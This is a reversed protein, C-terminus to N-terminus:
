STPMGVVPDWGECEGYLGITGNGKKCFSYACMSVDCGLDGMACNWAALVEAEDASPAGADKHRANAVMDQFTLASLDFRTGYKTRCLEQAKAQMGKFNHQLVVMEPALFGNHQCYRGEFARQQAYGPHELNLSKAWYLYDENLIADSCSKMYNLECFGNTPGLRDFPKRSVEVAPKILDAANPGHASSRGGCDKRFKQYKKGGLREPLPKNCLVCARGNHDFTVSGTSPNATKDQHQAVGKSKALPAVGELQAQAVDEFTKELLQALAQQTLDHQLL